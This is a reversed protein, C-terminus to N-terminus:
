MTDTIAAIAGNLPVAGIKSMAENYKRATMKKLEIIYSTRSSPVLGAAGQPFVPRKVEISYYIQGENNSKSGFLIGLIRNIDIGPVSCYVNQTASYQIQEITEGIIKDITNPKFPSMNRRVPEALMDYILEAGTDTLKSHRQNADNISNILNIKGVIGSGKKEDVFTFIQQKEDDKNIDNLVRFVLTIGINSNNDVVIDCGHYDRFISKLITNIKMALETTTTLSTSTTEVFPLPESDIIIRKRKSGDDDGTDNAARTYVDADDFISKMRKQEMLAM